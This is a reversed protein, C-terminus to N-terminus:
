RGKKKVAENVTWGYQLRQLFTSYNVGVKAALHKACYTKGRYKVLKASRQLGGKVKVTTYHLNTLYWGEMMDKRVLEQNAKPLGLKGEVADRFDEFCDWEKDLGLKKAVQGDRNNIYNCADKIYRWKNWLPHKTNPQSKM